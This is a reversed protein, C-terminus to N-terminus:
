GEADEIELDEPFVVRDKPWEGDAWFEVEMATQGDARFRVRKLRPCAIAHTGGCHACKTALLKDFTEKTVRQREIREAALDAQTIAHAAREAALNADAEALLSEASERRAVETSYRDTIAAIRESAFAAAGAAVARAKRDSRWVLALAIVAIGLLVSLAIEGVSM